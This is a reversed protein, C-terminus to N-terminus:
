PTIVVATETPAPTPVCNQLTVRESFIDTHGLELSNSDTAVFQYEVWANEFSDVAKMEVPILEYTFVGGFFPQMSFGTWKSTTETQKSKFRVFLVVFSANSSNAM